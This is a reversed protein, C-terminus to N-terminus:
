FRRLDSYVKRNFVVGVAGPCPQADCATARCLRVDGITIYVSQDGARVRCLKPHLEIEGSVDSECMVAGEHDVRGGIVNAPQGQGERHLSLFQSYAAFILYPHHPLSTPRLCAAGTCSAPRRSGVRSLCAAGMCEGCECVGECEHGTQGSPGSVAEWAAPLRSLARSLVPCLARLIDQRDLFMHPLSLNLLFM